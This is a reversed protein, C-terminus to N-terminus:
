AFHLTRRPSLVLMVLSLLLPVITPPEPVFAVQKLFFDAGLQKSQLRLAVSDLSSFDVSPVSLDALPDAIDAIDLLFRGDSAAPLVTHLQNGASTEPSAFVSAKSQNTVHITLELDVNSSYDVLLKPYQTVDSNPLPFFPLFNPHWYINFDMTADAGAKVHLAGLAPDIDILVSTDAPVPDPFPVLTGFIATFGRRGAFVGDVDTPAGLFAFAPYEAQIPFIQSGTEVFDDVIIQACVPSSVLVSVTLIQACRLLAVCNWRNVSLLM